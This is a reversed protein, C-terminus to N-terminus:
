AMRESPWIQTISEPPKTHIKAMGPYAWIDGNNEIAIAREGDLCIKVGWVFQECTVEIENVPDPEPETCKVVLKNM